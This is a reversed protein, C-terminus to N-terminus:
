CERWFLGDRHVLLITPRGSAVNGSPVALSDVTLRTWLERGIKGRLSEMWITLVPHLLPWHGPISLM